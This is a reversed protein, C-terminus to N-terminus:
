REATPCLCCPIIKKTQKNPPVTLGAYNLIMQKSVWVIRVFSWFLQRAGYCLFVQMANKSPTQFFTIGSWRPPSYVATHKPETERAENNEQVHKFTECLPKRMFNMKSTGDQFICDFCSSTLERVEPLIWRVKRPCRPHLSAPILRYLSLSFSFTLPNSRQASLPHFLSLSIFPFLSLSQFGSNPSLLCSIFSFLPFSCLPPSLFSSPSWLSLFFLLNRM